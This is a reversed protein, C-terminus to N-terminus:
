QVEGLSGVMVSKKRALGAATNCKGVLASRCGIQVVLVQLQDSVLSGIVATCATVTINICVTHNSLLNLLHLLASSPPLHAPSNYIFIV